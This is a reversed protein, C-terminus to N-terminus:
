CRGRGARPARRTSRGRRATPRRATATSRTATGCAGARRTPPSRRTRRPSRRARRLPRGAGQRRPARARPLRRRRGRGGPARRRRQRLRAGLRRQPRRRRRHPHLLPRRRLARQTTFLWKEMSRQWADAVGLWLAARQTDGRRRAIDSATVLGAIMAPLTSNSYGGTEEWREQPTAPGRTVLADAAKRIGPWTADDTRGLQWALILPFATQDLQVARTEPTGDVRSTQPFTGDALQQRAFLWTVAADAAARDGAALLSSVQQYLDRAWVFHYGAGGEDANVAFGWPLTLSAIFAGDYTKDAHAKVTMAAVDYQTRQARSLAGPARSSRACTPTGAASIPRQPATSPDACAPAPPGSPRRRRHRRVRARAHLQDDSRRRAPDRATQLVNGDPARDYDFDLAHDGALDTWGDSTGVFGSSTRAFGGSGVLASAVDGDRALLAVDDGRGRRLATDHRSSNGLAPDFLAFLRYDGPTLAEFTVRLLVTARM